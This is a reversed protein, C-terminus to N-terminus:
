EPNWLNVAGTKVVFEGSRLIRSVRAQVLAEEETKGAKKYAAIVEEWTGEILIKEATKPGVGPCGSYGDTSDGTLAQTLHYLDAQEKTIWQIGEESHNPNYLHGPITKMDKDESVIIKKGDIKKIGGTALIGMVDDAELNDFQITKYTEHCYDRLAPFVLPKRKGKRNNKYTPLVDKRWNEPGTLTIIVDDAELLEKHQAIWVDVAQKALAADGTLSWIDDGWDFAEEVAASEQYLLIDGDILLTTKM